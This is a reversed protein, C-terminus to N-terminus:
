GPSSATTADTAVVRRMALEAVCPNSPLVDVEGTAVFGCREYLAIASANTRVVWLTVTAAGHETAWAVAAEVLRRGAGLGRADPKVWMGWLMTDGPTENFGIGVLGSVFDAHEDVIVRGTRGAVSTLRQHWISDDFELEREYSSGFADPDTRLADLRLSKYLATEDGRLLRTVM